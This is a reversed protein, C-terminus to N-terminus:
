WRIGSRMSSPYSPQDLKVVVVQADDVQISGASVDSTAVGASLVTGVLAGIALIRTRSRKPKQQM